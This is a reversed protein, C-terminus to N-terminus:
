QASLDILNKVVPKPQNQRDFLLPYDTRGSVPWDNKWSNGDNVGWFTIRSIKDKHKQFLKFFSLYRDTFQQEVNEPLQEPFPNMEDEYKFNDSINAGADGWPSPLVSLDLESIAVEGLQGFAEISKEFESIEPHNLGIHGQMGIGHIPVNNDKLEKVMRVVGARKKPNAMSYDNYYLKADPDTQHAFQFALKIYDEGIIKYFKSERLSGDDEIAENVVDWSKIKGKYREVVTFIHEKMRSILEERSVDEGNEDVFFWKPTQSHWVLTHGHITMNNEEGFDVFKDAIEFNFKADDSRLRGSKMCNEAVISNFHSKVVDTEDPNRGTIQSTNLATGILFQDKFADKLSIIEADAEVSKDTRCSYIIFGVCVPLIASVITKKIM